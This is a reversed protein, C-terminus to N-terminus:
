VGVVPRTAMMGTAGKSLAVDRQSTSSITHAIVRKGTAVLGDWYLAKDADWAQGLMTFYEMWAMRNGSFWIGWSLWGGNQKAYTAFPYQGRWFKLVVHSADTYPSNRLWDVLPKADKDLKPQIWLVRVAGYAQVLEDLLMLPAPTTDTPTDTENWRINLQDLVGVWNTTPIDHDVGTVRLTNQDHSCVWYGDASLHVSVELSVAGLAVANDYAMRSQEPRLSGFGRHAVEMIEQAFMDDVDYPTPGVPMLVKGPKLGTSTPMLLKLTPSVLEVYTQPPAASFRVSVPASWPPNWGDDPEVEVLAPASWPKVVADLVEVSAPPSWPLVTM